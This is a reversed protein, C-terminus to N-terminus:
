FIHSSHCVCVCVCVCVAECGTETHADALDIFLDGYEDPHTTVPVLLSPPLPLSLHILCIALKVRMDVPLDDPIVLELVGEGEERERVGEREGVMEEPDGSLSVRIASSLMQQFTPGDDTPMTTQDHSQDRSKDDLPPTTQEPGM